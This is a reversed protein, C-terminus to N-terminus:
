STPKEPVPKHVTRVLRTTDYGRTQLRNLIDKYVGSDLTPTRSLIWLYDRGPHGVVAYQYQQGLDIIWYHYGM